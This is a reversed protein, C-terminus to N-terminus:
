QKKDFIVDKGCTVCGYSVLFAKIMTCAECQNNLISM